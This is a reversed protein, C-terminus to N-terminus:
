EIMGLAIKFGVTIPFSQTNEPDTFHLAYKGEIFADFGSGFAFDVGLGVNGMFGNNKSGYNIKYYLLKQYVLEPNSIELKEFGASGLFYPNFVGGAHAAPIFYKAGAVVSYYRADGGDGVAYSQLYIDEGGQQLVFDRLVKFYKEKDPRFHSYGFKVFVEVNDQVRRGVGAEFTEGAKWLDKLQSSVPIGVGSGLYVSYKYDEALISGAVLLLGLALIVAKRM